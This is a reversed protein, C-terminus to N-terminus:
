SPLHPHMRFPAVTCSDPDPTGPPPRPRIRPASASPSLCLTGRKTALSPPSIEKEQYPTSAIAAAVDYGEYWSVDGRAGGDFRSVSSTLVSNSHGEISEGSSHQCEGASLEVDQLVESVQCRPPRDVKPEFSRSLDGLTAGELLYPCARRRGTRTEQQCSSKESSM